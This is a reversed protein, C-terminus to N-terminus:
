LAMKRMLKLARSVDVGGAKLHSRLKGEADRLRARVPETRRQLARLEKKRHTSRLVIEEQLMSLLRRREATVTDLLLQLEDSM